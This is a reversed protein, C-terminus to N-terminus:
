ACHAQNKGNSKSHYMAKDARKLANDISTLSGKEVFNCGISLTIKFTKEFAEEVFDSLRNAFIVLNEYSDINSFLVVFEDGGLRICFDGSRSCKRLAKAFEVLVGDGVDHGMTDNVSKFDDIDIFIIGWPQNQRQCNKIIETGTEQLFSRNYLGTLFDKNNKEKEKALYETIKEVTDRLDAIEVTLEYNDKECKVLSHNALKESGFFLLIQSLFYWTRGCMSQTKM